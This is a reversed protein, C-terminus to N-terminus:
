GGAEGRMGVPREAGRRGAWGAEGAEALAIEALGCRERWGREVLLAALARSTRAGCRRATWLAEWRVPARFRDCRM